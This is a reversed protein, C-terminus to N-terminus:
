AALYDSTVKIEEEPQICYIFGYDGFQFTPMRCLFCANEAFIYAHSLMNKRKGKLFQWDFIKEM